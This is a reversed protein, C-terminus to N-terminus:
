LFQEDDELTERLPPRMSVSNTSKIFLVEDSRSYGTKYKEKAILLM